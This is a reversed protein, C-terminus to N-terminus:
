GGRKGMAWTQVDVSFGKEVLWRLCDANGGMAAWSAVVTGAVFPFM